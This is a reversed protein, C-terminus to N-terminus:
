LPVEFGQEWTWYVAAQKFGDKVVGGPIIAEPYYDRAIDTRDHWLTFATADTCYDQFTTIIAKASDDIITSKMKGVQWGTNYRVSQHNGNPILASTSPVAKPASYPHVLSAGDTLPGLDQFDVAHVLYVSDVYVLATTNVIFGLKVYMRAVTTYTTPTFPGARYFRWTTDTPFDSGLTFSQAFTEVASGGSTQSNVQVLFTGTGSDNRAWFYVYWPELDGTVKWGPVNALTQYQELVATAGAPLFRASAVGYKYAATSRTAGGTAYWDAGSGGLASEFGYNVLQSGIAPYVILPAASTASYTM